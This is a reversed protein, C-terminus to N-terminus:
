TSSVSSTTVNAPNIPSTTSKPAKKNQKGEHNSNVIKTAIDTFAAKRKDFEAQTIKGDALMQEANKLLASVQLDILKQVAIGKEAALDALSKNASLATKLEVETFGLLSAIASMDLQQGKLGNGVRGGHGGKFDKGEPGELGEPGEPGEQPKLLGKGDVLDDLNAAFDTKQKELAKNFDSTLLSKLEDRSLGQEEAIQALTKGAALKEQLAKKDLKLKALLDASFQKEFLGGKGAFHRVKNSGDKGVSPSPPTIGNPTPSPSVIDAAYVTLPIITALAATTVLVKFMKKM